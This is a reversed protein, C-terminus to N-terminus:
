LEPESSRLVSRDRAHAHDSTRSSQRSRNKCKVPMPESKLEADVWWTSTIQSPGGQPLAYTMHAEHGVIRSRVRAGSKWRGGGWVIAAESGKATPSVGLTSSWETVVALSLASMSVRAAKLSVMWGVGTFATNSDTIPIRVRTLTFDRTRKGNERGRM